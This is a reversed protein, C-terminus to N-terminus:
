IYESNIGFVDSIDYAVRIIEPIDDSIRESIKALVRYPVSVFTPGFIGNMTVARVVVCYREETAVPKQLLVMLKRAKCRTKSMEDRLIFDACRVLELKKLTVDDAIYSALGTYSFIHRSLEAVSFGYNKGIERIENRYMDAFPVILEKIGAGTQVRDDNDSVRESKYTGTIIYSADPDKKLVNKLEDYVIKCITICKDNYEIKDKLEIITRVSADVVELELGYSSILKKTEEIENKRFLGHDVMVFRCRGPLAKMCAAVCVLSSVGGSVAVIAKGKKVRTRLESIVSDELVEPTRNFSCSCIDTFFNKLIQCCLENDLFPQIGYIKREEDAIVLNRYEKSCAISKFGRPLITISDKYFNKITVNADMGTFLPSSVDFVAKSKSALNGNYKEVRGMLAYTMAYAAYGVCIMPKGTEFLEPPLRLASPSNVDDPSGVAILGVTREDRVDFLLMELDTIVTYVGFTRVFQAIQPAREGGLELIVIRQDTM